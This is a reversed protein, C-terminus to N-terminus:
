QPRRNEQQERVSTLGASAGGDAGRAGCAASSYLKRRRGVIMLLAAAGWMTAPDSPGIGFLMSKV